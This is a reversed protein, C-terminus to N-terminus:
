GVETNDVSESAKEEIGLYHRLVLDRRSIGMARMVEKLVEEDYTVTMGTEEPESPEPRSKLLQQYLMRAYLRRFAQFGAPSPYLSPQFFVYPDKVLGLVDQEYGLLVPVEREPLDKRSAIHIWVRGQADQYINSVHLYQLEAYRLGCARVFRTAPSFPEPTPIDIPQKRVKKSSVAKEKRQKQRLDSAKRVYASRM